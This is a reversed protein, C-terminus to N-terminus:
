CTYTSSTTTTITIGASQSTTTYMTTQHIVLQYMKNNMGKVKFGDTRTETTLPIYANKVKLYPKSASEQCEILTNDVVLYTKNM